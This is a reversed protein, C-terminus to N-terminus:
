ANQHTIFKKLLNIGRQHRSKITNLNEGLTEAIERFTFHDNYRLFLIMRYEAPIKELIASLSLEPVFSAPPPISEWIDDALSVTKKKRLWDISANKAIGFIWTKFNKNKDFKKLNKWVRVFVDQVIDEAEGGSGTYRYVFSYIPRLYNGILIELAKENGGLYDGILQEDTKTM